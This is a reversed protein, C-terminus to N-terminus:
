AASARDREVSADMEALVDGRLARVTGAYARPDLTDALEAAVELAREVVADPAVAEDLFGAQTAGVGDLLRANAVCRQLHRKPLREKSIAMAWDPLTLAIAVENLGIRVPADPGVRHDCGLLLLAGAAVAHGTCAAVVPVSSGYARRVMAGGASVLETMAARDGGRIVNLDFGAFFARQNGAIVVAGIGDDAEAADIQADLAALMSVSFANAKGDDVRVLLVSGHREASVTGNGSEGNGSTGNGPTGADNM